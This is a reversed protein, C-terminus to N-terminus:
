IDVTPGTAIDVGLQARQRRDGVEDDRAGLTLDGAVPQDAELAAAVRNGARSDSLGDLQAEAGGLDLDVRSQAALAVASVGALAVAGGQGVGLLRRDAEGAHQGLHRRDLDM